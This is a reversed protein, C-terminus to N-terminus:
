DDEDEDDDEYDFFSFIPLAILHPTSFSSSYSTGAPQPNIEVLSVRYDTGNTEPTLDRCVAPAATLDILPSM